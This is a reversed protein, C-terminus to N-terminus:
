VVAVGPGVANTVILRIKQVVDTATGGAMIVRNIAALREDDTQMTPRNAAAFEQYNVAEVGGSVGMILMTDDPLIIPYDIAPKSGLPNEDKADNCPVVVTELYPVGLPFKFKFARYTTVVTSNPVLAYTAYFEPSDIPTLKPSGDANRAIVRYEKTGPLAAPAWWEFSLAQAQQALMNDRWLRAPKSADSPYEPKAFLDVTIWAPSLKYYPRTTM